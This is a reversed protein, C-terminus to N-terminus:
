SIVNLFLDILEQTKLEMSCIAEQPSFVREDIWSIRSCLDVKGQLTHLYMYIYAGSNHLDLSIVSM